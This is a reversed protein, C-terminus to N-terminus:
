APEFILSSHISPHPGAKEWQSGLGPFPFNFPATQPKNNSILKLGLLPPAGDDCQAIWLCECGKAGTEPEPDSEKATRDCTRCPAASPLVPTIEASGPGDPGVSWQIGRWGGWGRGVPRASQPRGQGHSLVGTPLWRGQGLRVVGVGVWLRECGLLVM